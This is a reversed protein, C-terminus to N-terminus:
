DDVAAVAVVPDGGGAGIAADAGFEEAVAAFMQQEESIDERTFVEKPSRDEFLFSGGKVITM